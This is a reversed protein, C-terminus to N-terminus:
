VHLGKKQDYDEPEVRCEDIASGNRIDKEYIASVRQIHLIKGSSHAVPEGSKPLRFIKCLIPM